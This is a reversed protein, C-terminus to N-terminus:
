SISVKLADSGLDKLSFGESLPTGALPGGEGIVQNVQEQTAGGAAGTLVLAPGIGPVDLLADVVPSAAYSGMDFGSLAAQQAPLLGKQGLEEEFAVARSFMFPHVPQGSQMATLVSAYLAQKQSDTLNKYEGSQVDSYFIANLAAPTIMDGM